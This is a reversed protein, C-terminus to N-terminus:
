QCKQSVLRFDGADSPPVTDAGWNGIEGPFGVGELHSRIKRATAGIGELGVVDPELSLIATIASAICRAAHTEGVPHKKAGYVKLVRKLPRRPTSLHYPPTGWEPRDAFTQVMLVLRGDRAAYMQPTKTKGFLQGLLGM